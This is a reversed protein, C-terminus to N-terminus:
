DGSSSPNQDSQEKQEKQEKQEQQEQQEQQKEIEEPSRPDPSVEEMEDNWREFDDEAYKDKEGNEGHSEAPPTEDKYKDDLKKILEDEEKKVEERMFDFYDPEHIQPIVQKGGVKRGEYYLVRSLDTPTDTNERLRDRFYAKHKDGYKQSFAGQLDAKKLHTEEVFTYRLCAGQMQAENLKAGRLRARELCAGRLNAEKLNARQLQTRVLDAGQMQAGKLYADQLQTEKLNARYLQAKWLEAGRLYAGSLNILTKPCLPCQDREKRFLLRLLSQIEGSPKLKYNKQYEEKQTHERIHICLSETVYPRMKENQLALQTLAYAGGIRVAGSEEGLHKIADRFQGQQHGAEIAKARRNAVYIGVAILFGSVIKAFMDFDISEPVFMLRMVVIAVVIIPILVAYPYKCLGKVARRGWQDIKGVWLDIKKLWRKIKKVWRKIKKVWEPSKGLDKM